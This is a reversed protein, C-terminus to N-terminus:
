RLFVGVSFSTSYWVQRFCYQWLLNKFDIFLKFYNGKRGFLWEVTVQLESMAKKYYLVVQPTFQM